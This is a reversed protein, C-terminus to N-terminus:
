STSNCCRGSEDGEALAEKTDRGDKIEPPIEEQDGDDLGLDIAHGRVMGHAATANMQAAATVAALLLVDLHPLELCRFLPPMGGPEIELVLLYGEQWAEGAPEHLLRGM